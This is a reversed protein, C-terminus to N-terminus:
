IYRERKTLALYIIGLLCATLVSLSIQNLIRPDGQPDMAGYFLLFNRAISNRAFWGRLLIQTIWLTGILAAGSSSNRAALSAACGLAAAALCPILWVLQRQLFGGLPALSIGLPLLIGQFIFATLAIAALVVGLRELIMSWLSQSTTFQLELASDQLFTYASLGGALLPLLFGLFSRATNFKQDEPGLVSVILFLGMLAAPLWFLDKQFTQFSYYLRKQNMATDM